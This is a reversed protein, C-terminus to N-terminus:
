REKRAAGQRVAKGSLLTLNGANDRAVSLGYSGSLADVFAQSDDDRFVGSVRLRAVAGDGIVIRTTRYRNFQAVATPLPTDNFVLKGSLWAVAAHTDATTVLPTAYAKGMLLQQGATMTTPHTHSDRRGSEQTVEVRGEVLTVEVVDDHEYVDFQTGVARVVGGQTAVLFPRGPDKAVHFFARGRKLILRRTGASFSVSLRTDTDMTVRSGDELVLTHREGVGTAYTQASAQTARWAFWASALVVVLLAAMAIWGPATRRRHRQARTPTRQSASKRLAQGIEPREAHAGLGSWLNELRHYASRHAPDASLWRQFDTREQESVDDARLRAFWAAAARRVPDSGGSMHLRSENM